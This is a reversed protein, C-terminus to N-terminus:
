LNNDIVVIRARKKRQESVKYRYDDSDSDLGRARRSKRIREEKEFELLCAKRHSIQDLKNQQEKRKSEARENRLWVKASIKREHPHQLEWEMLQISHFTSYSFPERNNNNFDPVPADDNEQSQKNYVVGTTITGMALNEVVGVVSNQQVVQSNDQSKASTGNVSKTDVPETTENLSENDSEPTAQFNNSSM